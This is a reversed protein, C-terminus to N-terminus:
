MASQHESLFKRCFCQEMIWKTVAKSISYAFLLDQEFGIRQRYMDHQFIIWKKFEAKTCFSPIELSLDRIDNPHDKAFTKLRREYVIHEITRGSKIWEWRESHPLTFFDTLFHTVAGIKESLVKIGYQMGIQALKFISEVIDDLTEKMYHKPRFPPLALDPKVSGWGFKSVDLVIEEEKRLQEVIIHSIMNHTHGLLTSFGKRKM